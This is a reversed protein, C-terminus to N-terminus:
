PTRPPPTLSRLRSLRPATTLWRPMSLRSPCPVVILTVLTAFLVGFAILMRVGQRILIETSEGGASYLVVLGLACMLVLAFLLPLDLHLRESLTRPTHM